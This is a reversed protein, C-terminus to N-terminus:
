KEMEGPSDKLIELLLMGIGSLGTAWGTNKKMEQYHSEELWYVSKSIKRILAERAFLLESTGTAASLKRSIFALGTIGDQALINLSKCEEEIIRTLSISKRLLDAHDQLVTLPLQKIMSELGLLLFVRNSHLRPYLSTIIPTLYDLIRDIKHSSVQLQKSKALLILLLPLDWFLTFLDPERQQFNEEEVLQGIRNIIESVVRTHIYHNVPDHSLELRCTYYVWYGLLGQRIDVPLTEKNANWYRYIRDDVDELIEDPDAAVFDNKILHCLGWAIGALGNEFDAAISINGAAEYVEGICKEAMTQHAPDNTERALMFYYIGLGMKGQFLGPAENSPAYEALLRNIAILKSPLQTSSETQQTKM